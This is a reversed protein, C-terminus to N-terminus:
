RIKMSISIGDRMPILVTEFDPHNHIAANFTMVGRTPADLRDTANSNNWRKTAAWFPIHNV